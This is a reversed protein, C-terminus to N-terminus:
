RKLFPLERQITRYPQTPLTSIFHFVSNESPKQSLPDVCNPYKIPILNAFNPNTSPNKAHINLSFVTTYSLKDKATITNTGSPKFSPPGVTSPIISHNKCDVLFGFYEFFDLIPQVTDAVTFTWRISPTM